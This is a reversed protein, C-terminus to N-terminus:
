PIKVTVIGKTEEKRTFGFQKLWYARNWECDVFEPHDNPYEFHLFCHCNFDKKIEDNILWQIAAKQEGNAGIYFVGPILVLIDSDFPDIKKTVFSGDVWILGEVKAASLKKVVGELGDMIMKRRKSEKFGDVTLTRLEALTMPHFGRPLLPPFEQKAMHNLWKSHFVSANTLNNNVIRSRDLM